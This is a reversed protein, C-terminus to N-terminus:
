WEWELNGCRVRDGPKVGAKKLARNVGLRALHGKLQWRMESASMGDGAMMRELGPATLVFVGGVRRVSIGADRPQPRFVKRPVGAEGAVASVGRLTRAVEAMLEPVGQGTAASIKLVKIGAGQFVGTIEPLRAKVEPLDIKNLAVVQPKQALAPDFLALEVNVRVMDELPSPSSGSILHLLVKTRLVHRLFDHGLGKGLHAGEILGPIEAMVFRATGVEVVGLVPELTTFPYSAIRPRASSASALLTSKGSNPYGIIGVDAILRMELRVIQEEGTEGRQALRPAQNTSSAFHTNGWGGSGGGAVVLEDGPQALDAVFAATGEKTLYSVATGPPVALVLDEGSRGHMRSGRGHGGDAARYLRRQRYRRLDDLSADARIIVRGGDGGDGGDPGGYPVFKERRFSIAGDGGDGGIVRIEVRDIM